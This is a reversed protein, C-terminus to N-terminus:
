FNYFGKGVLSNHSCEHFEGICHSFRTYVIYLTIYIHKIKLFISNELSNHSCESSERVNKHEQFIFLLYNKRCAPGAGYPPYM